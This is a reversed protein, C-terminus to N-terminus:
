DPLPGPEWARLSLVGWVLSILIGWEGRGDRWGWCPLISGLRLLSCVKGIADHATVTDHDMIRLSSFDLANM